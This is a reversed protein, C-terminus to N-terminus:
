KRLYAKTIVIPKLPVDAFMGNRGTPVVLMKDVVEMGRIVKGFACYGPNGPAANLFDNDQVNFFFQSTASNPDNTRAMAITGRDNSLAFGAENVIPAKVPKRNMREDFGGGQVIKMPDSNVVRHIITGDYFGSNVYDLFNAVTKPAVDPDMMIMIPGMSTEFVVVKNPAAQAPAAAFLFAAFLISVLFRM